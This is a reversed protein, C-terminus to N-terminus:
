FGNRIASRKAARLGKSESSQLKMELAPEAACPFAKGEKGLM